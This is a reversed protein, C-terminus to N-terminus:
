ELGFDRALTKRDAPPSISLVPVHHDMGSIVLFPTDRGMGGYVKKELRDVVVDIFM